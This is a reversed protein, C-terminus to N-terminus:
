PAANTPDSGDSLGKFVLVIAAEFERETGSWLSQRVSAFYAIRYLDGMALSDMLGGFTKGKSTREWNLVDRTDGEVDFEPLGDPKVTFKIM